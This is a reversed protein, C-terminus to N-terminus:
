MRLVCSFTYVDPNIGVLLIKLYLDFAEYFFHVKLMGVLWFMGLFCM